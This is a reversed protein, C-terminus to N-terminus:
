AKKTFIAISEVVLGGLILIPALTTRVFGYKEEANFVEPEPNGGGMMLFYGAIMLVLGLVVLMYNKKGFLLGAEQDKNQGQSM